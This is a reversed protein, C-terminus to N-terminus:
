QQGKLIKSKMMLVTRTKEKSMRDPVVEGNLKSVIRNILRAEVQRIRERSVGWRAALDELSEPERSLVRTRIIDRERLDTVELQSLVRELDLAYEHEAQEDNASEDVLTDILLTMSGPNDGSERVLVDLSLDPHVTHNVLVGLDYDTLASSHPVEKFM